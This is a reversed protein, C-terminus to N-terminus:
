ELFRLWPFGTIFASSSIFPCIHTFAPRSLLLWPFSVVGHRSSTQLLLLTELVWPSSSDQRLNGPLFPVGSTIQWISPSPTPLFSQNKGEEEEYDGSQNPSSCICGAPTLGGHSLASSTRLPPCIPM